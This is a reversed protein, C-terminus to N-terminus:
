EDHATGSSKYPVFVFRAEGRYIVFLCIFARPDKYNDKFLVQKDPEILGKEMFDELTSASISWLTAMDNKDLIVEGIKIADQHAIFVPYHSFGEKIIDLATERISEKMLILEGQLQKLQAEWEQDLIM